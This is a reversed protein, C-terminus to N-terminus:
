KTARFPISIQKSSRNPMGWAAPVQEHLPVDRRPICLQLQPPISPLGDGGCSGRCGDLPLAAETGTAGQHPNGQDLRRRRDNGPPTPRDSRRNGRQGHGRAPYPANECTCGGQMATSVMVAPFAAAPRPDIATLIFTQTGGGSAGTVGIRQPDVDPLESLWDLARISNYSQLGMMNQLRVEAQPSFYGWNEATSMAPRYGPGHELQVSDAYGVMDYHFVVCGMRALQMCRAQLPHRGSPEFREAGEALQRRFDKEATEHFRGAPWHGHPCLVAPLKGSRGKPRYLSGTVFHGPFSEFFVKEVTYGDRDVKGHVVANHPTRPPMPWLGTAVLIQRRLRETRAQWADKTPCPQFPFYGNLDKPRDLRHDHPREGAPLVRTPEAGSTAAALAIILISISHSGAPYASLRM